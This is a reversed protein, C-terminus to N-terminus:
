GDRLYAEVRKLDEPTNIGLTEMEHHGAFTRIRGHRALWPIFPLFNREGTAAGLDNEDAFRPLQELFAEGTLAFLGMDNEGVEPMADGERRHLVATIVGDEDRAFHIYPESKHFTPMVLDAGGKDCLQELREITRPHIAVQDCWTIWVHDPPTRRVTEVACLLADLMGTPSSQIAMEVELGSDQCHAEVAELASPSVVIAFRDVSEAYLDFLHDIMLDGGVPVLVKPRDTRLRTGSGAAPIVLVRSM